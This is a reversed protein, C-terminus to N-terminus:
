KIIVKCLKKLETLSLKSTAMFTDLAEAIVKTTIIINNNDFGKTKDVWFLAKTDEETFKKGTLGCKVKKMKTKYQAFSLEFDSVTGVLEGLAFYDKSLYVDPNVKLEQQLPESASEPLTKTTKDQMAEGKFKLYKSQVQQLKVPNFLVECIKNLTEKIDTTLKNKPNYNSKTELVFSKLRNVDRRVLLVNGLCYDKHEDIRELSVVSDKNDETEYLSLEDGTYDCLGKNETFIYTLEELTLTCKISRKLASNKHNRLKKKMIEETINWMIVGNAENFKLVM